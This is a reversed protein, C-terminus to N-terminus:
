LLCGTSNERNPFYINLMPSTHKFFLSQKNVYVCVCVCM